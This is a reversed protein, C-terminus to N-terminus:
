NLNLSMIYPYKLEICKEIDEFKLSAISGDKQQTGIVVKQIEDFVFGTETDEYNGFDNRRISLTNSQEVLYHLVPHTFKNKKTNKKKILVASNPCSLLRDILVKKVGSVKLGRKKCMEKLTTNKLKLLSMEDLETSNLPSSQILPKIHHKSSTWLELLEDFDFEYEKILLRIYYKILELDSSDNLLKETWNLNWLQLLEEQDFDFQSLLLQIYDDILQM